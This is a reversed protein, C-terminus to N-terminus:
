VPPVRGYRLRYWALGVLEHCVLYTDELARVGPLLRFSGRGPGRFGMPAPVVAFGARRFTAAARPMHWYHTVLFIREAGAEQLLPLADRANEWTTRSESEEWTVPCGFTEEMVAAMRRGAGNGSVLVPLGTRKQLHAGYRLRELTVNEVTVEGYERAGRRGGGDLVVIARAQPLDGEPPLAPHRDLLRLLGRSVPPLTLVVLAGVGVAASILGSRAFGAAALVLGLVALGLCGAPPFVFSKLFRIFLM